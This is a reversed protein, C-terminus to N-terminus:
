MWNKEVHEEKKKLMIMNKKWEVPQMNKLAVQEKEQDKSGVM